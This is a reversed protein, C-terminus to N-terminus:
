RRDERGAIPRAVALHHQPEGRDRGAGRRLQEVVLHGQAGGGRGDGVRARRHVAAVGGIEHGREAGAAAGVAQQVQQQAGAGVSVPETLFRVAQREVDEGGGRVADVEARQM